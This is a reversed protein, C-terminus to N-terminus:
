HDIERILARYKAILGREEKSLQYIPSDARAADKLKHAAKDSEEGTPLLELPSVNYIAAIRGVVEKGRLALFTQVRNREYFPTKKFGVLEKEDMRIAPIWYPDDKYLKWPLNLFARRKWFGKPEIIKIEEM